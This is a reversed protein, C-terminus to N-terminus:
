YFSGTEMPLVTDVLPIGDLFFIILRLTRVIPVTYAIYFHFFVDILLLEPSVARRLLFCLVLAIFGGLTSLPKIIRVDSLGSPPPTILLPRAFM